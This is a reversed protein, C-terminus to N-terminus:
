RRTPSGCSAADILRAVAPLLPEHLRLVAEPEASGSRRYQYVVAPSDQPRHRALMLVGAHTLACETDALGLWRRPGQRGGEQKDVGVVPGSGRTIPALVVVRAYGAALDANAPSRLGGVVYRRGDATIPPWIGARACSATVAQPLPVGSARDFARLEGTLADVTTVKIATAPWETVYLRDGVLRLREEEPVIPGRLAIRGVRRRARVPTRGLLAM